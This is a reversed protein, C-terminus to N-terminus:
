NIGILNQEMELFMERLFLQRFRSRNKDIFKYLNQNIFSPPRYPDGYAHGVVLTANKPVNDIEKINCKDLVRFKSDLILQSNVKAKYFYQRIYIRNERPM